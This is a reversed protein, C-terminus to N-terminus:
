PIDNLMNEIYGAMSFKVKDPLFWDIAMGLHKHIKGRTITMKFIKGYEADIDSLVRSFIDPDVHSMKIDEVNWLITCQKDNIKKNM